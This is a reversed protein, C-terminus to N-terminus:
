LMNGPRFFCFFFFTHSRGGGLVSRGPREQGGQPDAMPQEAGELEAWCWVKGRGGEGLVPRRSCSELHNHLSLLQLPEEVAAFFTM